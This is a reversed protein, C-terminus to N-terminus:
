ANQKKTRLVFGLVGLILGLVLLIGFIIPLKIDQKVADFLWNTISGPIGSLSPIIAFLGLIGAILACALAASMFLNGTPDEEESYEVPTVMQLSSPTVISKSAPNQAPAGSGTKAATGAKSGTGSATPTRAAGTDASTLSAQFSSETSSFVPASSGATDGMSAFGSGSSEGITASDAPVRAQSRLNSDFIGTSGIAATDMKIDQSETNSSPYIEDLLEAGLSTDDTERTLDLLGSGSGVSELALDEDKVKFSANAHTAAMSDAEHVEDPDFVSVKGPPPTAPKVPESKASLELASSGSKSGFSSLEVAASGAKSGFKSGSVSDAATKIQDSDFITIGTGTMDPDTGSKLDLSSHTDGSLTIRDGGGGAMSDVQTCKFMMKEGDRFLQLQGSDAMQKVDDASKGLKEAVEELTYFMKAM